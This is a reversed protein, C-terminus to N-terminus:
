NKSETGNDQTKKDKPPNAIENIIKDVVAKAIMKAGLKVIEEALSYNYHRKELSSLYYKEYMPFLKRVLAKKFKLNRKISTGALWWIFAKKRAYWWNKIFFRIFLIIVIIWFTNLIPVLSAIVHFWPPVGRYDRVYRNHYTKDYEQYKKSVKLAFSDLLPFFLGCAAATIYIISFM